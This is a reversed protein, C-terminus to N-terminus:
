GSPVLRIRVRKDQDLGQNVTARHAGEVTAGEAEAIRWGDAVGISVSVHGPVLLPQHLLDLEYWGGPLLTASGQLDMELTRTSRAPISLFASYVKRGLEEEAELAVPQGDFTAGTFGLPTYISVYTRNEGAQFRADYPGIIYSPLGEAPAQNEMAVRLRGSVQLRDGDPRLEVDYSTSRRLYYDIKNGGANQNVVALSDVKVPRLQSAVGVREVLSQEEPRTFWAALHGGRAPQGLADFIRSPSGLDATTFAGAVTEAVDGVFDVRDDNDDFDIYSQNLTVDAVNKATIPEPWPEVDV